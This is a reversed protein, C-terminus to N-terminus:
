NQNYNKPTEQSNKKKKLMTESHLGLERWSGM